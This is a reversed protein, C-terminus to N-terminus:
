SVTRGAEERAARVIAPLLEAEAFKSVVAGRRFLLGGAKGGAIGVDADRAEGPGNVVCGMVAVRLERNASRLGEDLPTLAQEVQEALAALDIECRGCTPCSVLTLGGRKLDLTRLLERSVRVEQLPDGTLSVRVTDGIGEALLAGLGACSRIIGAEGRGAETIGIHLPYDTQAAILRYAAITMPVDFAKLSIVVDRFELAELIRLHSLATQVLAQAGAEARDDGAEVRRQFRSRTQPSLSGWNVGVRIPVGRRKAARVVAEVHERKRLNGPNLRLKDAGQRLAELALRHNFHIDAILPIPIQKQLPGIAKVAALDPVAVRVLDCGAEALGNIQLATAAIDRTDTNTMSQVSVPATGGITLSGVRVPRRRLRPTM